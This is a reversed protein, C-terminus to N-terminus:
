PVAALGASRVSRRAAFRVTSQAAIAACRTVGAVAVPPFALTASHRTIDMGGVRRRSCKDCVRLKDFDAEGCLECTDCCPLLIFRSRCQVCCHTGCDECVLDHEADCLRGCPLDDKSKIPMGCAGDEAADLFGDEAVLARLQAYSAGDGLLGRVRLERLPANGRLAAVLGGASVNLSCTSRGYQVLDNLHLRELAGGARAVLAALRENTILDMRTCKYGNSFLLSRWLRPQRAADRWAHAVCAAACLTATDGERFSLVLEIVPVPLTDAYRTLEGPPAAGVADLSSVAAASASMTAHPLPLADRASEGGSADRGEQVQPPTSRM